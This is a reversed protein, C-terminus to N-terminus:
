FRYRVAFQLNRQPVTGNYATSTIRGANPNPNGPVGLEADPQGLNVQNFLNVAEVRIEVRHRGATMVRGLAADVQQFGPGRLANYPMSGFTGRAPRGFASGPAGIPTANFWQDRSRPGSPDGILDPRNPGTDRDQFADRYTVNFPLGSQATWVISLYWGGMLADLLRPWGSGAGSRISPLEVTAMLNFAQTRDFDAPGRNLAPDYIWYDDQEQEIRQLVYNAQFATGRAFRKTLRAQLSHYASRAPNSAYSIEQTWGYAGGLGLVNPRVGGAFFPRREDRPLGELFGELAPQNIPEDLTWGTFVRVGRNGVYAVEGTTTATILRELSVNWADVTPPQQRPAHAFAFV